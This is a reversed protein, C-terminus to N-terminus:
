RVLSECFREVKTPIEQAAEALVEDLARVGLRLQTLARADPAEPCPALSRPASEFGLRRAAWDATHLLASWRDGGARTWPEHHHGVASLLEEPFKWRAGLELGAREHDFGFEDREIARVDEASRSTEFRTVVRGYADLSVIALVLKGVDHLIGACFVTGAPGLGTREAIEKGAVGV